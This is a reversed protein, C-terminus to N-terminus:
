SPPQSHEIVAEQMQVVIISYDAWGMGYWVLGYWVM